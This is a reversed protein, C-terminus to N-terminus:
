FNISNIFKSYEISVKGDLLQETFHCAFIENPHYFSISNSYGLKIKVEDLDINKKYRNNIPKGISNLKGNKHRLYVVYDINNFNYIWLSNNSDPNNMYNKKLNYDRSKFIRKVFSYNSIYFKNFREQNFRQIIHIKEHILTNIFNNNIKNNKYQKYINELLNEPLIITNHLTYPMGKELFDTSMMFNWDYKTFIKYKQVRKDCINTYISLIKNYKQPVNILRKIYDKKFNSTKKNLKVSQMNSHVSNIYKNFHFTRNLAMNKYEEFSKIPYKKLTWFLVLFMCILILVVPFTIIYITEM